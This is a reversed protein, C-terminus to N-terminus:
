AFPNEYLPLTMLTGDDNCAVGATANISRTDGDGAQAVIGNPFYLDKGHPSLNNILISNEPIKM